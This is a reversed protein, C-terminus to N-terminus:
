MSGVIWHDDEDVCVPIKGKIVPFSISIKRQEHSEYSAIKIAAACAWTM